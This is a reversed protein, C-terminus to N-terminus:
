YFGVYQVVSLNVVINVVARYRVTDHDLQVGGDAVFGIETLNLM